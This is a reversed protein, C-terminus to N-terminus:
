SSNAITGDYSGSSGYEYTSDNPGDLILSPRRVRINAITIGGPRRNPYIGVFPHSRVRASYVVNGSQFTINAIGPASTFRIKGSSDAGNQVVNTNDSTVNTVRTIGSAPNPNFLTWLRDPTSSYAGVLTGYVVIQPLTISVTEIVIRRTVTFVFGKIDSTSASTTAIAITYNRVGASTSVTGEIRGASANWRIGSPMGTVTITVAEGNSATASIAIPTITEGQEYSVNNDGGTITHTVAVPTDPDEKRTITIIFSRTASTGDTASGSITVTHIGVRATESVTGTIQNTTRSFSLGTPLGSVSLSVSLGGSHSGSLSIAAISAGQEFSTNFGGSLTITPGVTPPTPRTPTPTPTPRPTVTTQGQQFQFNFRSTVAPNVGDDATVVITGTAPPGSHTPTIRGTVQGNLENYSLGTFLGEFSVRVTVPLGEPDDVVVTANMIGNRPYSADLGTISIIPPQNGSASPRELISITFKKVVRDYTATVEYVGYAATEGVTGTVGRNAFSYAM